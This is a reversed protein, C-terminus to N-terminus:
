AGYERDHTACVAKAAEAPTALLPARTRAFAPDGKRHAVLAKVVPTVPVTLVHDVLANMRPDAKGSAIMALMEKARINAMGSIAGQGGLAVGQALYREDGILIILDTHTKLLDQTYAWDGSSDKVGTVVGPFAAKLRGILAVSLPTQTVSPIHYLIVDRAASGLAKFCASFWQFLGEDSVGKFYFPPTFLLGKVGADLAMKAQAVADEVASAAVAGVLNKGAVGAKAFAAFVARREELGISAGEGTTGFLTVSSCGEGLCYQAHAVMRPLDVAGTETFPTVLAASLGFIERQSM